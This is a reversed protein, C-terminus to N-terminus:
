YNSFYFYIVKKPKSIQSYVDTKVGEGAKRLADEVIFM